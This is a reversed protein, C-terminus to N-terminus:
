SIKSLELTLNLGPVSGERLLGREADGTVEALFQRHEDALRPDNLAQKAYRSWARLEFKSVSTGVYRMVFNAKLAIAEFSHPTYAVAIPCEFGDTQMRFAVPLPVSPDIIQKRIQLVYPVYLHWMLSDRSYVMVRVRGGPRLIRNFELLAELPDQLHHLVGSTHIYDISSDALPIGGGSLKRVTVHDGFKHMALRQEAIALARDSVDLGILSRPKSYSAIGVVDHGPGCGYDLVDMGDQDNVPMLDLYGPYQECRWHFYRLSADASGLGEEREHVTHRSWYEDPSVARVPPSVPGRLSRKIRRVAGKSLSQLSRM